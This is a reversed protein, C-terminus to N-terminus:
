VEAPEIPLGTSEGAFHNNSRFHIFQAQAWRQRMQNHMIERVSGHHLHKRQVNFTLNIAWKGPAWSASEISHFRQVCMSPSKPSFDINGHGALEKQRTERTMRHLIPLNEYTLGQLSYTLFDLIPFPFGGLHFSCLFFSKWGIKMGDRLSTTLASHERWGSLSTHATSLNLIWISETLFHGSQKPGSMQFLFTDTLFNKKLNNTNKLIKYWNDLSHTTLHITTCHRKQSSTRSAQM